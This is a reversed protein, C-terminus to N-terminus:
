LAPFWQVMNNSADILEYAMKTYFRMNEDKDKAAEILWKMALFTQRKERIPVPVQYSTGGRKVPVTELFPTTNVLAAHFIAYPDIIIKNREVLDTTKYYKEL